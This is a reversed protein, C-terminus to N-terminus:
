FSILVPPVRRLQKRLVKYDPCFSEVLRWFSSSHNKQKVHALEHIIVYRIVQYSSNFLALNFALDNNSTCHGYKTKYFSLKVEGYKFNFTQKNIVEVLKEIESLFLVSLYKVVVRRLVLEDEYSKPLFLSSSDYFVRKRGSEFFLNYRKNKFVFFGKEIAVKFLDVDLSVVPERFSRSSCVKKELVRFVELKRQDSLHSPLYFVLRRGKLYVSSNKKNKVVVEVEYRNEGVLVSKPFM